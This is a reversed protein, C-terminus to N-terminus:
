RHLILVIKRKVNPMILETVVVVNHKGSVDIDSVKPKRSPKFTGSHACAYGRPNIQNSIMPRIVRMNVTTQRALKFMSRSFIIPRNTPVLSVKKTINKFIREIIM